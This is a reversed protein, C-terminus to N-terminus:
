FIFKPHKDASAGIEITTALPYQHVYYALLKDYLHTEFALLNSCIQREEEDTTSCNIMQDHTEMVVTLSNMIVQYEEKTLKM